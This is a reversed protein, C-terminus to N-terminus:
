IAFSQGAGDRTHRCACSRHGQRIGIALGVRKFVCEGHLLFGVDTGLSFRSGFVRWGFSNWLLWGWIERLREVSEPIQYLPTPITGRALGPCKTSSGLITWNVGTAMVLTFSIRVCCFGEGVPRRTATTPPPQA